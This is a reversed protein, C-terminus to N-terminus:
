HLMWSHTFVVGRLFAENRLPRADRSRALARVLRAVIRPEYLAALALSAHDLEAESLADFPPRAELVRLAARLAAPHSASKLMESRYASMFVRETFFCTLRLYLWTATALFLVGLIAPAV